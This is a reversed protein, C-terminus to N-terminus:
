DCPKTTDVDIGLLKYEKSEPIWKLTFNVARPSIDYCGKAILKKVGNEKEISPDPSFKADSSDVNSIDVKKNIFERFADNFTDPTTQKQWTKSIKSHFDSFDGQKVADDFDMLATRTLDQMEADSPLEWKSADSKEYSDSDSKEPTKKAEKTDTSGSKKYVIGDLKMQNGSPPQDIKLTPGIGFFTISLTKDADNIAVTGNDVKTGGSHYDGSSDSRITLTSGDSGTWAGHYEAPVPKGDKKSGSCGLGVFLAIAFVVLLSVYANRGFFLKYIQNKM